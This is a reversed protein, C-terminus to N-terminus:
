MSQNQEHYLIVLKCKDILIHHFKEDNDVEFERMREITEDSLQIQDDVNMNNEFLYDDFDNKLFIRINNNSNNISYEPLDLRKFLKLKLDQLRLDRPLLLVFIDDQYFFKVKVKRESEMPISQSQRNSYHSLRDQHSNSKQSVPRSNEDFEKDFGNSLVDFLRLVENSKSIVPPLNILEKLYTDLKSRRLRSISDNVNILPGPISPIIRKQHEFKGAELPYLELLKVQLDYFDQYYRFLHRLKNNSLKATILYIYRGHDLQYSDVGAEIIHTAYSSRNSDTSVSGQNMSHHGSQNSFSGPHMVSGPNNSPNGSPNVTITGLPITSAQYKATQLKWDEITPINFENIITKVDTPFKKNLDVLDIPQVYSTPILGPGGLRNIPKAIYWEFNHHACILLYEGPIISLEDDKESEFSYLVKVYLTNSSSNSSVRTTSSLGPLVGTMGNLNSNYSGSSSLSKSSTSSIREKLKVPTKDFVEFYSIPVMGVQDSLPNLVKWWDNDESIVHFFDGANFALEKPGQPSYTYLAKIVKEPTYVDKKSDSGTKDDSINKSLSRKSKRFTKM